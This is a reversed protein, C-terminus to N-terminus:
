VCYDLFPIDDLSFFGRRIRVALPNLRNRSDFVDTESSIARLHRSIGGEM